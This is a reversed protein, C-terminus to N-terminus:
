HIRKFPSPDPIFYQTGGGAGSGKVIDGPPFLYDPRTTSRLATVASDSRFTVLTQDTVKLGSELATSGV